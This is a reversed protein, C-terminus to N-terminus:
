DLISEELEGYYQILAKNIGPLFEIQDITPYGDVTIYFDRSIKGSNRLHVLQQLIDNAKLTGHASSILDVTKKRVVVDSIGYERGNAGNVMSTKIAMGRRINNLQDVCRIMLDLVTM